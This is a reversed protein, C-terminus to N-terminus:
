LYKTIKGALTALAAGATSAIGGLLYSNRATKSEVSQLRNEHDELTDQVSKLSHDMSEVKERTVASNVQIDKLTSDRDDDNM